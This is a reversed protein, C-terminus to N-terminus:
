EAILGRRLNFLELEARKEKHRAQLYAQHYSEYHAEGSQGTHEMERVLSLWENATEALKRHKDEARQIATTASYRHSSRGSARFPLRLRVAGIV